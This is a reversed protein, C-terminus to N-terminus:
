TAQKSQHPNGRMAMESAMLDATDKVTIIQVNTASTIVRNDLSARM